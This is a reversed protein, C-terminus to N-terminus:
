MVIMYQKEGSNEGSQWIAFACSNLTQFNGLLLIEEDVTVFEKM